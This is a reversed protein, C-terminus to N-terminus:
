EVLDVLESAPKDMMMMMMMMMMGNSSESFSAPEDWASPLSPGIAVGPWAIGLEEQRDADWYSM